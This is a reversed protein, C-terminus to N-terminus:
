ILNELKLQVYILSMLATRQAGCNRIFMRFFGNQPADDDCGFEDSQVGRLAPDTHCRGFYFLQCVKIHMYLPPRIKYSFRAGIKFPVPGSVDASDVRLSPRASCRPPYRMVPVSSVASLYGRRPVSSTALYLEPYPFTSTLLAKVWWM